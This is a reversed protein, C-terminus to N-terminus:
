EGLSERSALRDESRANLILKELSRLTEEALRRDPMRDEFAENMAEIYFRLITPDLHRTEEMYRCLSNAFLGVIPHGFTGALGRTDHIIAYFRDRTNDEDRCTAEIMQLLDAIHSTLKQAYDKSLSKITQQMQELARPDLRIPAVYASGLKREAISPLRVFRASITAGPKEDAPTQTDPHKSMSM